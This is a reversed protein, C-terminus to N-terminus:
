NNNSVGIAEAVGVACKKTSHAGVHICRCEGTKQAIKSKTQLTDAFSRECMYLPIFRRLVGGVTAVSPRLVRINIRRKSSATMVLFWCFYESQHNWRTLLMTSLKVESKTNARGGVPLKFRSVKGGSIGTTWSSGAM